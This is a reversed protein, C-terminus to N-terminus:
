SFKASRVLKFLELPWENAFIHSLDSETTTSSIEFDDFSPLPVQYVLLFIVKRIVFHRSKPLLKTAFDCM